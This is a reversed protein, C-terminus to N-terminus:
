FLPQRFLDTEVKLDRLKNPVENPLTLDPPFAAFVPLSRNFDAVIKPDVPRRNFTARDIMWKNNADKKFFCEFPEQRYSGFGDIHTHWIRISKSLEDVFGIKLTNPFQVNLELFVRCLGYPYKGMRPRTANYIVFSVLLVGIMAAGAIMKTQASWGNISALFGAKAKAQIEPESQQYHSRPVSQAELARDLLRKAKDSNIPPPKSM